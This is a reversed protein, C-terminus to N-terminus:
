PRRPFDNGRPELVEDQLVEELEPCKAILWGISVEVPDLGLADALGSLFASPPLTEGRLWMEVPVITKYGLRYALQAATLEGRFLNRQLYLSFLM